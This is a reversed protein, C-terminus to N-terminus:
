NGILKCNYTFTGGTCVFTAAAADPDYLVSKFVLPGGAVPYVVPALPHRTAIGEIDKGDLCQTDGDGGANYEESVIGLDSSATDWLEFRMRFGAKNTMCVSKAHIPPSYVPLQPFPFMKLPTESAGLTCSYIGTTGTCTINAMGAEPDYVVSELSHRSGAAAHIVPVIPHGAAIQPIKAVDACVRGGLNYGDTERLRFNTMTDWLQFSLLFAAQNNVCIKSAKPRDPIEPSPSPTPTDSCTACCFGRVVAGIGFEYCKSKADRCATISLGYGKIANRLGEDSDTCSSGLKETTGNESEEDKGQLLM